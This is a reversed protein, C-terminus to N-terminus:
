RLGLYEVKDGATDFRVYVADETSIGLVLTDGTSISFSTAKTWSGGVRIFGTNHEHSKLFITSIQGTTIPLLEAVGASSATMTDSTVITLPAIRVHAADERAFSVSYFALSLIIALILKKM